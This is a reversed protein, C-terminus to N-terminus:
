CIVGIVNHDQIATDHIRLAAQIGHAPIAEASTISSCSSASCSSRVGVHCARSTTASRHRRAPTGITATDGAGVNTATSVSPAAPTTWGGRSRSRAPQGITVTTSRRLSSGHFRESRVDASISTSRSSERDTTQTLLMVPRARTRAQRAHRDRTRHSRQSAATPSSSSPRSTHRRHPM